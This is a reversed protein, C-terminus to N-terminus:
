PLYTFDIQRKVMDVRSIRIMIPDGLRYEKKHARGKVSYNKEDFEYYDDNLERFPIMGECRNEDIEVYIGFKNMGSITGQHEEGVRAGLYEAQKYKISAREANSALVERDSSHLCDGELVKEEIGKGGMLYRELLRHVLVDPYRRIPSTFHTYYKFALGYHGINKTTYTAKAMARITITSILNEEPKDKVSTLMSNISNTLDNQSGDTNINYGLRKVFASVDAIKMPDPVDHVRYVFARKAAGKPVKGITEAVYRNALLMFEEVLMNAEKAEKFYVNTPKGTEDIDFRMESREFNISGRRFRQKRLKQALDNLQLMEDKYEGEGSEITSQVEEYIFRRNSEIVTRVIRYDIVTAESNLEFIAAFCLKEENPRLSCIDNSLREPLMPITRDVLYVSTARKYAEDDIATNPKVYHTVDAIHVGVEWNGNPLKQLSIADDFDKADKPDITVTLVKRFDERKAIEEATITRDIRNAADELEKPYSYPLGFEALIAHMETNNEGVAGLVDIVRGEPHNADPAWDIVEVIVKEGDKAEGIYELPIYIDEPIVKSNSLLFAFHKKIEIKGVVTHKAREVIATVRAEPEYGRRKVKVFNVIDGSIAHKTSNPKVYIPEDSDTPIIYYERGKLVFKGESMGRKPHLRFRGPDTEVLINGEEAMCKLIHAVEIRTPDDKVDIGKSIQKYNFIQTPRENFFREIRGTLEVKTLRKKTEKKKKKGM